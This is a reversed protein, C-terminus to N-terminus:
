IFHLEFFFFCSKAFVFLITLNTKFVDRQVTNTELPFGHVGSLVPVDTRQTEQQVWPSSDSCDSRLIPRELTVYSQAEM